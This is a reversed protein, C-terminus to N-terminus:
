DLEIINPSFYDSNLFEEITVNLGACIKYILSLTPSKMNGRYLNQLTAVPLEADKALRYLTIERECLYDDIRKAVAKAITM